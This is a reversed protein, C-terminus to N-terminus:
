TFGNITFCLLSFIGGGSDVDPRTQTCIFGYYLYYNPTSINRLAIPNTTSDMSYYDLQTWISNDNSGLIYFSYPYRDVWPISQDTFSVSYSTWKQPNPISIKVWDGKITGISASGIYNNPTTSSTNYPGNSIFNVNILNTNGTSNFCNYVRNSSGQSSSYTFNYQGNLLSNGQGTVYSSNSSFLDKGSGSGLVFSINNRGANYKNTNHISNILNM